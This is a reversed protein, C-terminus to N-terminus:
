INNEKRHINIVLCILNIVLLILGLIIDDHYLNTIGRNIILVSLILAVINILIMTTVWCKM